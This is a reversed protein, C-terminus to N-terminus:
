EKEYKRFFFGVLLNSVGLISLLIAVGVMFVFAINIVRVGRKWTIILAILLTLLAAVIYTKIGSLASSEAKKLNLDAMEDEKDKPLIATIQFATCVIALIILITRIISMTDNIIFVSAAILLWVIGSLTHSIYTMRSLSINTFSDKLKRKKNKMTM